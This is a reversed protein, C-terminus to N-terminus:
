KEGCIDWLDSCQDGRAIWGSTGKWLVKAWTGKCTILSVVVDQKRQRQAATLLSRSSESPEAFLKGYARGRDGTDFKLFLTPAYIWGDLTRKRANSDSIDQYNNVRVWNGDAEVVHFIFGSSSKLTTQVSFRIGPGSRVNTGNKDTSMGDFGKMNNVGAFIDCSTQATTAVAQYALLAAVLFLQNVFKM